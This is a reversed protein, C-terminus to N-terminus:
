ACGCCALRLWCLRRLAGGVPSSNAIAVLLKGFAQAEDENGASIIDGSSRQPGRSEAAVSSVEYGWWVQLPPPPPAPSSLLWCVSCRLLRCSHAVRRRLCFGWVHRYQQGQQRSRRWWQRRCRRRWRYTGAPARRRWRM